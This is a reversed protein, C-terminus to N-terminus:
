RIELTKHYGNQTNLTSNGIEIEIVWIFGLVIIENYRGCDVSSRSGEVLEPCANCCHSM